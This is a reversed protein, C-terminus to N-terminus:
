PERSQIENCRLKVMELLDENDMIPLESRIVVVLNVGNLFHGVSSQNRKLARKQMKNIETKLKEDIMLNEMKYREKKDLIVCEFVRTLM